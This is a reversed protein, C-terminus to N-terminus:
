SIDLEEKALALQSKTSRYVDAVSLATPSYINQEFKVESPGAQVPAEGTEKALDTTTAIQRATDISVEPTIASVSMMADLNKSAAQVKTLDLVPTITPTMDMGPLGEPMKSLTKHFSSVIQEAAQVASNSGMDSNDKIGVALGEVIYRGIEAMRKSPSFISFFDKVKKWAEKALDLIVKFFKGVNNKVGQVLGEVMARGIGLAATVLEPERKKIVEALANLFQTLVEFASDALRLSGEAIGEMFKEILNVGADIVPQINDAIGDLFKVLADAGAKAIETAKNGVATIFEAVLTGVTNTVEILNNIIGSLFDTLLKFGADIILQQNAALAAIFELILSTIGEVVKVINQSIGRLLWLLIDAGASVIKAMGKAVEALITIILNAIAETIKGVNQSMGLLLNVILNAGAAVIEGVHEALTNVFSTILAVVAGVLMPMNAILSAVLQSIIEVAVTVIEFINDRIGKLLTMLLEFGTKLILPFKKRILGVAATIIEGLAEAIKPVLEIVTDLVHGLIVRVTKVLLPIASLLEQAFSLLFMAFAKAIEPGATALVGAMDVLAKAAAKGTEAIIKFAKALLFAGAGFLAFGGGILAIASGLGLLIPVAGGLVVAAGGLILFMAALAGLGKAIESLSMGGLVKLVGTLVVLAGSIIVLSAAGALASQMGHMAVVLIALMAALGGIGKIMDTFSMTSLILVAGAMINLAGAVLVLGAATIPMNLPMLHMAGAIIVLAAGVGLLGQAMDGWSMLAFLAVAGALITLGTALPILAAGAALTSGIPMLNMSAVILGLGVGVGVLGKAMEGWSMTAFAQVAEALIRMALAIAGMAIGARILGATDAAILKTSTTLLVLGAGVGGLGKALDGLSLSSLNKIAVSLLAMAAALGIMAGAFLNMKIASTGMDLKDILAMVAILQGFGVGIAVLAKTLAKSDILSLAVMSITLIGVAGAIKLLAKAKLDAQMAKLTNTLQGLTGKISDVIGTFAKIDIGNSLFRKFLVVLGGLLGVNVIDVASNFDGPQMVAALKAGLEGFWTSIYGWLNALVDKIRGLVNGVREAVGALHDFRSSLRGTAAEVAESGSFGAFFSVIALKFMQIAMLPKQIAFGIKEFFKAIGGGEVLAQQLKVLADGTNAAFDLAGGGIGSFSGLIDGLLGFVGKVVEWGISIVAFIGKFARQLKDMTEVSIIFKQTLESFAKTLEVLRVATMAPFIERFASKLPDIVNMLANVANMLGEGLIDRGGLEKWGSLLENRADAAAGVTEGFANNISTWLRKGEEFNGFIIEFTQAWGSGVSEKMTDIMQSFTKVDTAAATARKGIDTTADSYRGLTETLAESTLWQDTLSENFGKTTSVFTGASTKWHDGEKTLTGMAVASDILQQKFEVTAMNALEISKWDMLKVHGASLAQAFNYMGRSAEEANAGSLAAVNAVGQIAAVSKDLSVGANTFKGINSTMDKFSYITKDSYANLDQLKRNVTELSEGSGAMITQISGMKLEFEQFGQLIPATTLSKAFQVGATVAANTLRTLATVGITALALFKGSVGEITAGIHSMDMSNAAAGVEQLGKTAGALQLTQTLKDLSAITASLKQEFKANDFQMSVIRDDIESM